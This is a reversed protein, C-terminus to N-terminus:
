IIDFHWLIILEFITANNVFLDCPRFDDGCKLSAGGCNTHMAGQVM